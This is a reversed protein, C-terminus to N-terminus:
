EPSFYKDHEEVITRKTKRHVKEKSVLPVTLWSTDKQVKKSGATSIYMDTPIVM